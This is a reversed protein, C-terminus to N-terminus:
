SDHDIRKDGALEVVNVVLGNTVFSRKYFLPVIGEKQLFYFFVQGRNGM